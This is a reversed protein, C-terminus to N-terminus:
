VTLSVAKVGTIYSSSRPLKGATETSLDHCYSSMAKVVPLQIQHMQGKKLIELSDPLSKRSLMIKEELDRGVERRWILSVRTDRKSKGEM